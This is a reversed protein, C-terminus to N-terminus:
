QGEQNRRELIAADAFLPTGVGWRHTGDKVNDRPLRGIQANSRDVDLPAVCPSLTPLRTERHRRLGGLDNEPPALDERNRFHRGEPFHCLPLASLCERLGPSPCLKM